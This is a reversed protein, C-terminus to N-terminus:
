EGSGVAGFAEQYIAEYDINDMSQSRAIIKNGTIVGGQDLYVMAVAPMKLIVTYDLIPNNLVSLKRITKSSVLATLDTIMNGDLRLEDLARLGAFYPLADNKLESGYVKVATLGKLKEVFSWDAIRCGYVYLEGMNVLAGIGASDEIAVGSLTLTRVLTLDQLFDTSLLTSGSSEITLTRVGTIRKWASGSLDTDGSLILTLTNLATKEKLEADMEDTLTALDITLTKLSTGKNDLIYLMVAEPVDKLVMSTKDAYIEGIMEGDPMSVSEITLRTTKNLEEYFLENAIDCDTLTYDTLSKFRQAATEAEESIIIRSLTLMKIGKPVALMIEAAASSHLLDLTLSSLKTFKALPAPDGISTDSLTLTRIRRAASTLPDLSQIGSGYLSLTTLDDLEKLPTLDLAGSVGMYEDDWGLTLTTLKACNALPTLDFVGCNLLTLTELKTFEGIVDLNDMEASTLTMATLSDADFMWLWRADTLTGEYPSLDVERVWALREMLKSPRLTEFICRARTQLFELLPADIDEAHIMGDSRALALLPSDPEYWVQAEQVVTVSEGPIWEEAEAAAYLPLLLALLVFLVRRKM